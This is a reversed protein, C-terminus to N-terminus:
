QNGVVFPSIRHLNRGILIIEPHIDKELFARPKESLPMIEFVERVGQFIYWSGDDKNFIGKSRYIMFEEDEGEELCSWLTHRVWQLFQQFVEKSMLPPLKFTHTSIDLSHTDLSHLHQCDVDLCTSCNINSDNSRQISWELNSTNENGYADLDLIESIDDLRGYTTEIIKALCNIKLITQRVVSLAESSILDTKNLILCDAHSIQIFGIDSEDKLINDINKCDIVTVIGDLKVDSKLADDLWFTQALPGPNAIGTTEIVINDFRGKQRMIKELAKIGNDKVTCCMCGNSLAVWEEYLEEGGVDEMLSRELDGSDGVENMLVAVRKGNRNELISRLLSTKGAGLFGTLITVPVPDLTSDHDVLLFDSQQEFSDIDNNSSVTPVSLTESHPQTNVEEVDVLQPIESENEIEFDM